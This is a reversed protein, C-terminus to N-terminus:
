FLFKLERYLHIPESQMKIKPVRFKKETQEWTVLQIASNLSSGYVSDSACRINLKFQLKKERVFNLKSQMLKCVLLKM